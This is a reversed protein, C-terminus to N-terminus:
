IARYQGKVVKLRINSISVTNLGDVCLLRCTNNRFMYYRCTESRLCQAACDSQVARFADTERLRSLAQTTFELKRKFIGTKTNETVTSNVKEKMIEAFLLALFVIFINTKM